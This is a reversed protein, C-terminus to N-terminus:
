SPNDYGSEQLADLKAQLAQMERELDQRQGALIRLKREDMRSQVSRHTTTKAVSVHEAKTKLSHQKRELVKLGKKAREVLELIQPEVEETLDEEYKKVISENVFLYVRQSELVRSMRKLDYTGSRLLQQTDFTEHCVDTLNAVCDFVSPSCIAGSDRRTHNAGTFVSERPVRSM